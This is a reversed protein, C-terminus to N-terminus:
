KGLARQMERWTEQAAPAGAPGPSYVRGKGMWEPIAKGAATASGPQTVGAGPATAGEGAAAASRLARRGVVVWGRKLPATCTWRSSTNARQCVLGDPCYRDGACGGDRGTSQREKIADLQAAQEATLEGITAQSYTPALMAGLIFLLRFSALVWRQLSAAAVQLNSAKSSLM